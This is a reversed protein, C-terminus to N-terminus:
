PAATETQLPASRGQRVPGRALVPATHITQPDTLARVVYDAVDARSIVGMRWEGPQVMVRYDRSARNHTLITPRVITWDLSSAKILEEQRTKDKYPESLFFKQGLREPTSLAGISDGAGIGTVAILRRIGRAEMLPILARTADSFLTVRRWLMAVSENIGLTMVVADVGDLAPALDDPKTADGPVIELGERAAIRDVHRAMARVTHGAALAEEVVAAGIGRSAGIVLVKM